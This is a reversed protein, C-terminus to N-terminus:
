LERLGGGRDGGGEVRGQSSPHASMLLDGVQFNGDM